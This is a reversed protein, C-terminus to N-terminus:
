PCIEKEHRALWAFAEGEGVRRGLEQFLGELVAKERRESAAAQRPSAGGDCWLNEPSLACYSDLIQEMIQAETRAM